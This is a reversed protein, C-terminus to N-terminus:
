PVTWQLQSQFSLHASVVRHVMQSTCNVQGLLGGGLAQAKSHAEKAKGQRCGKRGLVQVKEELGREPPYEPGQGYHRSGTHGRGQTWRGLTSQKGLAHGLYQQKFPTLHTSPAQIPSLSDVPPHM